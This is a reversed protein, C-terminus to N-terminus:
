APLPAGETLWLYVDRGGMSVDPCASVAVLCDMEARFVVRAGDDGVPRLDSNTMRGSVVDITM